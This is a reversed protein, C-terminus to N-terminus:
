PISTAKPIATLSSTPTTRTLRLQSNARLFALTEKPSEFISGVHAEFAVVVGRRRAIQTLENLMEASVALSKRRSWGQQFVGPLVTISPVACHQCFQTVAKFEKLNSARISPDRHNVARESFNSSFSFILNAVQVNLGNIREAEKVPSNLSRTPISPRALCHSSNRM